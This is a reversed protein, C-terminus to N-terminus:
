LKPAHKITIGTMSAKARMNARYTTTRSRWHTTNSSKPLTARDDGFRPQM